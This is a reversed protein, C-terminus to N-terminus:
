RLSKVELFYAYAGGFATCALCSFVVLGLLFGYIKWGAPPAERPPAAVPSPSAAPDDM